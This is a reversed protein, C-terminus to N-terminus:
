LRLRRSPTTPASAPRLRASPSHGSGSQRRRSACPTAPPSPTRRPAAASAPRSRRPAAPPCSRRHRPAPSAASAARPASPRPPSLHALVDEALLGEGQVLRIGFRGDGRRLLGADREAEAVVPAEMGLHRRQALPDSGPSSPVIRCKSAVIVKGFASNRVGSAHRASLSSVGHPPSVGIPTWAM